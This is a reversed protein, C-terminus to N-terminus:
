KVTYSLYLSLLSILIASISITFSIKTTLNTRRQALIELIIPVASRSLKGSDTREAHSLSDIHFDLSKLLDSTKINSIGSKSNKLNILSYKEKSM